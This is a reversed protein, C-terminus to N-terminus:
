VLRGSSSSRTVLDWQRWTWSTEVMEARELKRSVSWATASVALLLLPSIIMLVNCLVHSILLYAVWKGGVVLM